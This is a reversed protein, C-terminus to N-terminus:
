FIINVAITIIGVAVAVGGAIKAANLKVSTLDKWIEKHDKNNAETIADIKKDIWDKLDIIDQKTAIGNSINTQRPAM